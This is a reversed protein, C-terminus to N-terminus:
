CPRRREKNEAVSPYLSIRRRGCPFLRASASLLMGHGNLDAEHMEGKIVPWVPSKRPVAPSKEIAALPSLSANGQKLM